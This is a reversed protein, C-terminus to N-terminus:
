KKSSGSNVSSYQLNDLFISQTFLFGKDSKGAEKIMWTKTSLMPKGKVKESDFIILQM